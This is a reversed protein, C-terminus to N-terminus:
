DADPTLADSVPGTLDGAPVAVEEAHARIEDTTERPQPTSPDGAFGAENPKAGEAETVTDTRVDQDRETM